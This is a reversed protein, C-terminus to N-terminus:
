PTMETMRGEAVWDRLTRKLIKGTPGHPMEEVTFLRRPVKYAALNERCFALLGAPDLSRGARPILVAAPIEGKVPDPVGIV